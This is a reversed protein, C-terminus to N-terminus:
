HLYFTMVNLLLAISLFSSPPIYAFLSNRKKVRRNGESRNLLLAESSKTETTFVYYLHKSCVNLYALININKTM